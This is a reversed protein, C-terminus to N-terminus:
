LAPEVRPSSSEGIGHTSRHGAPGKQPVMTALVGLVPAEMRRLATLAAHLQPRTTKGIACTVLAGSTRQALIAGDGFSLLPPADILVVDFRQELQEILATMAPSRLVDGPSPPRPGAPLVAPGDDGARQLAEELSVRGALVDTLGVGEEFGLLSAASPARLHGDVVVVSQGGESIAVALNAASTSTGEGAEPATMTVSLRDRTGRLGQVAARLTRYAEAGASAPSHRMVLPHEAAGDDFPVSGILPASSDAPVERLSRITPNLRSRLIALGFGALLGALLGGALDFPPNPSAPAAPVAARQTQTIKVFPKDGAAYLTLTSAATSLRAAVANAIAAARDARGDTVTVDVVVSDTPSWAKVKTALEEPTLPLRLDRVVGNLVYPTTAVRAYSAVVQQAFNSGANLGAVSQASESSVFVETRAEYRPPMLLVYAISAAFVVVVTVLILASNSRAIRLYDRAEM